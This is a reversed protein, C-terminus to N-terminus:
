VYFDTDKCSRSCIYWRYEKFAGKINPTYSM